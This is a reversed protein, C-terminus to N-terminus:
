DKERIGRTERIKQKPTLELNNQPPPTTDPTNPSMRFGLFGAVLSIFGACGRVIEEVTDPLFSITGPMTAVTAVALLVYLWTLKNNQFM